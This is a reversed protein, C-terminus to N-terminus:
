AEVEIFSRTKVEAPVGKTTAMAEALEDYFYAFQEYYTEGTMTLLASPSNVRSLPNIDAAWAKVRTFVSLESRELALLLARRKAEEKLRKVQEMAKEQRHDQVIRIYWKRYEKKEWKKSSYLKSTSFERQLESEPLEAYREWYRIGNLVRQYKRKDLIYSEHKTM